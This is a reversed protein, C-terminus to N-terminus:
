PIISFLCRKLGLTVIFCKWYAFTGNQGCKSIWSRVAKSSSYICTLAVYYKRKKEEKKKLKNKNSNKRLGVFNRAQNETNSAM